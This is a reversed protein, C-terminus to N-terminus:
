VIYPYDRGAAQRNGQGWRLEHCFGRPFIKTEAPNKESRATKKKGNTHTIEGGPRIDQLPLFIHIIRRTGIQGPLCLQLLTHPIHHVWRLAQPSTTGPRVTDIEIGSRLRLWVAGGGSVTRVQLPTEYTTPFDCKNEGSNWCRNDGLPFFIATGTSRRVARSGHKKKEAAFHFFEPNQTDCRAETWTKPEHVALLVSFARFKPHRCLTQSSSVINAETQAVSPTTRRGPASPTHSGWKRSFIWARWSYSFTGVEWQTPPTRRTNKNKNQWKWM